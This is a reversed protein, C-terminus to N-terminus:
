KKIENSKGAMKRKYNAYFEAIFWIAVLVAVIYPLLSRFNLGQNQRAQTELTEDQNKQQLEEDSKNEIDEQTDVQDNENNDVSTDEQLVDLKESETEKEKPMAQEEPKKQINETSKGKSTNPTVDKTFTATAKVKEGATKFSIVVGKGDTTGGLTSVGNKARLNPSIKLYYQTGPSLPEVPKVFIDRKMTSDVTDDIKTVEIPVNKGNEDILTFCNRNNDWYVMNVVNKNFKLNFKPMLPINTANKVNTGDELSISEFYIPKQGPIGPTDAQDGDHAVAITFSVQNVFLFMILLSFVLLGRFAKRKYFM